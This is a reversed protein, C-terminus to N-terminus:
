ANHLVVKDGVSLNYRETLGANIELTYISSASPVINNCIEKNDCPQNDKSIYVIEKDKSIWLMDLPILTNKMWFPHIGEEQFIFLMGENENLSQVFMLGKQREQETIALKVNFCNDKICVQSTQNYTNNIHSVPYYNILIVIIILLIITIIVILEKRKELGLVM